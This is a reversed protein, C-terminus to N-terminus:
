FLRRQFVTNSVTELDPYADILGEPVQQREGTLAFQFQFANAAAKGRFHNNFIVVVERALVAGDRVRQVWPALEQGSYLYDYRENRGVGERFWATANRGHLRCYALDATAVMSPGLCRGLDPQDISCLAAGHERCLGAAAGGEWSAHRLEVALPYVSFRRLLDALAARNEPTNKFSWPWQVLVASLRGTRVLPELARHFAREDVLSAKRTHTFGQFLKVSFRFGPRGDIRRAWEATRIPDPIRYFSSDVELVQFREALFSLPDFARGAKMPYVTGKWDPYSWGATGIRINSSLGREVAADTMIPM